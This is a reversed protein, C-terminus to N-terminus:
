RLLSMKQFAKPSIGFKNKFATTFNSSHVYGVELAVQTVNLDGKAILQQAKNLRINAIFEKMSCGYFAKFGLKLKTKSVGLVRSIEDQSPPSRWQEILLEGASKLMSNEKNSLKSLETQSEFQALNRMALCLLEVTKAQLFSRSFCDSSDASLLTNTAQFISDNMMITKVFLDKDLYVKHLCFPLQEIQFSFPAKLLVEPKLMLMVILYDKEPDETETLKLDVDSYAFTLTGESMQFETNGNTKLTNNGKLKFAIVLQKGPYSVEGLDTISEPISNLTYSNLNLVRLIIGPQLHYLVDSGIKEGAIEYDITNEPSSFKFRNLDDFPLNVDKKSM